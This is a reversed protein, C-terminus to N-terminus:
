LEQWYKEIIDAIENFSKTLDLSALSSSFAFGESYRIYNYMGHDSKMGSWEIVELPLFWGKSLYFYPNNKELIWESLGSIDCLIGLCSFKDNKTRLCIKGHQYKESLLAEIWKDKIEEKM